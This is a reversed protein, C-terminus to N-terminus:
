TPDPVVTPGTKSGEYDALLQEIKQKSAQTFKYQDNLDNKLIAALIGPDANFLLHAKQEIPSLKPVPLGITDVAHALKQSSHVYEDSTRYGQSNTHFEKLIEMGWRDGLAAKFLNAQFQQFTQSAPITQSIYWDYIHKTPGENKIAKGVAIIKQDDPLVRNQYFEWQKFAQECDSFWDVLDLATVPGSGIIALQKISPETM